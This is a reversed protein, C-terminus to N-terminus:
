YLIRLRGGPASAAPATTPEAAPAETPAATPEAAPAPTPEAAPATTPETAAPATTPAAAPPTSGCAALIPVILVLLLAIAGSRRWLHRMSRMTTNTREKWMTMCLFRDSGLELDALRIRREGGGPFSSSGSM